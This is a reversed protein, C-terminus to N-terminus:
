AAGQSGPNMWEKYLKNGRMANEVPAIPVHLANIAAEFIDGHSAKILSLAAKSVMSDM